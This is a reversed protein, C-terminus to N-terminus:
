CPTQDNELAFMLQPPPSVKPPSVAPVPSHGPASRPSPAHRPFITLDPSTAYFQKEAKRFLTWVFVEKLAKGREQRKCSPSCLQSISQKLLRLSSWGTQYNVMCIQFFCNTSWCFYIQLSCKLSYSFFSIQNYLYTISQLSFRCPM